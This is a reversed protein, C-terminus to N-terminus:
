FDPQKIEISIEYGENTTNWMGLLVKWNTIPYYNKSKERFWDFIMRLEKTTFDDEGKKELLKFDKIQYVNHKDFTKNRIHFSPNKLPETYVSVILGNISGVKGEEEQLLYEEIDM